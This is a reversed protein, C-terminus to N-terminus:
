NCPYKEIMHGHGSATVAVSEANEVWSTQAAMFETFAKVRPTRHRGPVTVVHVPFPESLHSDQLLPVLAGAEEISEACRNM